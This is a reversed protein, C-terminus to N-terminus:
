AFFVGAKEFSRNEQMLPKVKCMSQTDDNCGPSIWGYFRRCLHYM